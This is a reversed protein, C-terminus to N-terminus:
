RRSVVSPVRDPAGAIVEAIGAVAQRLGVGVADGDLVGVVREVEDGVDLVRVRREVDGEVVVLARVLLAAQRRHGVAGADGGEGVVGEAVERAFALEDVAVRVHRRVRVVRGVM